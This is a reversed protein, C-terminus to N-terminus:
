LDKFVIRKGQSQAIAAIPAMAKNRSEDAENQPISDLVVGGGAQVTAIGDKVFASRILICTDMDGNGNFYGVAGGYSGRRCGEVKRLLETARIKPAGTLTGMNMCAQYAHLADLDSRLKAVVHSVLHMVHSYRDVKLLEQTCRTRPEAIRALDNRALDVLMLHESLEKNDMRLEFEVRSDLDPNVNGDADFGRRRTGAIPYLEVLRSSATFKVSIEPSAGFVIFEADDVFFMYPSPNSKRLVCYAREPDPCPLNFSRSPVVQFIDGRHIFTKLYEVEGCYVKDSKNTTVTVANFDKEPVVQSNLFKRECFAALERSRNELRSREALDESLLLSSIHTTQAIHSITLFNEALYFLFDPCTNTGTEVAPLKEFVEILDYAFIGALLIREPDAFELAAERVARLVDMPSSALLRSEEDLNEPIPPFSFILSKGKQEKAIEPLVECIKSLLCEGNPTLANVTVSRGRCVIRLAADSLILSQTGAHTTLDASELLLTNGNRGNKIAGYLNMPDNVYPADIISIQKKM